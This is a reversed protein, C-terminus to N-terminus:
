ETSLRRVVFRWLVVTLGLLLVPAVVFNLPTPVSFNGFYGAGFGYIFLAGGVLALGAELGLVFPRALSVHEGPAGGSAETM